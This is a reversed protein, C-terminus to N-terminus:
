RTAGFQCCMWVLWCTAHPRSRVNGSRRPRGGPMRLPFSTSVVAGHDWVVRTGAKRTISYWFAEVGSQRPLPAALPASASSRM